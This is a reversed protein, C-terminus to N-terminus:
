ACIFTGFDSVINIIGLIYETVTFGNERADSQVAADVYVMLEITPTSPTQRKSNKQAGSKEVLAGVIEDEMDAGMMAVIIYLILIYQM